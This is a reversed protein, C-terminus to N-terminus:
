PLVKETSNYIILRFRANYKAIAVMTKAFLVIPLTTATMNYDIYDHLESRSYFYTLIITEFLYSSITPMNSRKQWYKLLRIIQLIEGNHKQNVQTVNKQDIRPDTAKWQGEGDPILYFGDEAYFAPVIDFKWEYSTLSLTAAEQRRHIEAQSYHEINDLSSVIKNVVKISNLSGDDNCLKRLDTAETPVNIQYTNDVLILKSHTSRQANFTLILDIDDLPRIKTNRAFSGFKIHKDDYLRPFNNVKEPFLNLQEILWDRSSRAKITRNSDLNVIDKNFENFASNVTTAM